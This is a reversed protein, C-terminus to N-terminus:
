RAAGVQATDITTVVSMGPRLRAALPQNPDISIRVPIRQAIKVFNGTANDPAIVSFESGTAPSIREVHGRLRANGLADVSFTVPQGVAVNAMQTEKMNAIVWMTDPVLATLQAGANVFAGLRVTVQGLQGDRPATIRTNALDIEALKVAAEANAVAAELAARNVDVSRLNQRAIEIAARSQDRSASAQAQTARAADLERASLSGDAALQEVRRLDAQARRAQAENSALLAQNQAITARASSQSQAFNALAAQRNALEARAQALRQTPIREDIRMLLEGQKVHQFDQVRVEVVYGSLQPSIITVQGRVLANETSQLTSRFPPLNWAYLVILVGVIAIAGFALASLLIRRSRNPVTSPEPM